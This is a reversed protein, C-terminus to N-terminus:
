NENQPKTKQHRRRVLFGRVGAQIKTACRDELEQSANKKMQNKNTDIMKGTSKRRGNRRPSTIDGNKNNLQKRVQYGRFSAQIKTAAASEANESMGTSINVKANNNRNSDM